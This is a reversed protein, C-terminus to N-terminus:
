KVTPAIMICCGKRYTEGYKYIITGGWEEEWDDAVDEFCHVEQLFIINYNGKRCFTFIKNRKDKDRIGQVNYTIIKLPSM